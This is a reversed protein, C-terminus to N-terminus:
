SKQDVSWITAVPNHFFALDLGIKHLQEYLADFSQSFQALKQDNVFFTMETKCSQCNVKSKHLIQELSVAGVDKCKPCPVFVFLHKILPYKIPTVLNEQKM